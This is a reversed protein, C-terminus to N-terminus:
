WHVEQPGFGLRCHHCAAGIQCLNHAAADGWVRAQRQTVTKSAWKIGEHQGTLCPPHLRVEVSGAGEGCGCQRDESVIRKGPGGTDPGIAACRQENPHCTGGHYQRAEHM